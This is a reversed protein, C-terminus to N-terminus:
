ANVKPHYHAVPQIGHITSVNFERKEVEGRRVMGLLRSRNIGVGQLEVQTKWGAPVDDLKRIFQQWADQWEVTTIRASDTHIRVNAGRSKPPSNLVKM